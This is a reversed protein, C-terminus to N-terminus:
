FYLITNSKQIYKFIENLLPYILHQDSKGTIYITSESCCMGNVLFSSGYDLYVNNASDLLKIQDEFDTTQQTDYELYEIGEIHEYFRRYDMVRDNQVYNQAKNRSFFLNPINKETSNCRSLISRIKSHFRDLLLNFTPINEVNKDNLCYSNLVKCINAEPIINTETWHIYQETIGYLNLFLRKYNRQPTSKLIIKGDFKFLHLYIATEYVWHAFADHYITEVIYYIQKAEKTVNESSRLPYLNYSRKSTNIDIDVSRINEVTDILFEFTESSM